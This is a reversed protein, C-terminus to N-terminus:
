YKVPQRVINRTFFSVLEVFFSVPAVRIINCSYIIKRLIILHASKNAFRFQSHLVIMKRGKFFFAERVVM